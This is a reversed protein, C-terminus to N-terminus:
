SKISHDVFACREWPLVEGLNTVGQVHFRLCVNRELGQPLCQPEVYLRNAHGDLGTTAIFTAPSSDLLDTDISYASVYVNFYLFSHSQPLADDLVWAPRADEPHNNIYPNIPTMPPLSLATDWTLVGVLHSLSDAASDPAFHAWLIRPLGVSIPLIPPSPYVALKGLSLVFNCPLSPDKAVFGVVLGVAISTPGLNSKPTFTLEQKSWGHPLDTLVAQGATLQVEEQVSLPKVMVTLDLDVNEDSGPKYVICAEYSRGASVTLSQVPLWICRFFADDAHSGGCAVSMKLSNGGNWADTMDLVTSATPLDEDREDGEWRLTPRPWALNGISCQKDIDTWGQETQLVSMGDVFWSWGVGPSFCTYFASKAPDPPPTDVFFMSLPKFPGENYPPFKDPLQPPDPVPVTEGSHSPGIWLKHEYDWWREWSWGPKDQESEWTWGPGFLAVSLGLSQPSIHTIARYSNFGGGGYQGRGWVDIGTWVSQLTKVRSPVNEVAPRNGLLVPDITLFYAAGLAPYNPPWFYNTFLADSALFFPLNCHNLRNQYRLEGSIIVSDYWVVDAHGGVKSRLKARLLILWATLAHAQETGGPLSSEFNLLYGDFGRQFALEALCSAYHASLPISGSAANSDTSLSPVNGLLLKLGDADSESHELILVGLIKVGQRHAANIWGSPPVTIRHHSFYVFTDCLSWFNFTYCLGSPSETYGGKYDHCVLLKGRNDSQGSVALRPQYEFVGALKSHPQTFWADLDALSDFFPAEDGVLKSHGVGRLPM